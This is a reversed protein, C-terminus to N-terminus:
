RDLTPMGGLAQEVGIAIVNLESVPEAARWHLGSFVVVASVFAGVMMLTAIWGSVPEKLYRRGLFLLVFGALPFAPILWALRVADM